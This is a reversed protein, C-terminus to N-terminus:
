KIRWENKKTIPRLKKDDSISKIQHCEMLMLM